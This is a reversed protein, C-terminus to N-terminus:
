RWWHQSIARLHMTAAKAETGDSLLLTSDEGKTDAQLIHMGTLALETCIERFDSHNTCHYLHARMRPASPTVEWLEMEADAMWAQLAPHDPDIGTHLYGGGPTPWIQGTEIESLKSMPPALLHIQQTSTM